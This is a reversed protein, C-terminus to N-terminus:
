ISWKLEIAKVPTTQTMLLYEVLTTSDSNIHHQPYAPVIISPEQRDLSLCAYHISGTKAPDFTKTLKQNEIQNCLQEM